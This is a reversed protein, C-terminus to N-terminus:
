RVRFVSRMHMRFYLPSIVKRRDIVDITAQAVIASQVFERNETRNSITASHSLIIEMVSKQHEALGGIDSQPPHHSRPEIAHGSATHIHWFSPWRDILATMSLSEHGYRVFCLAKSPSQRM